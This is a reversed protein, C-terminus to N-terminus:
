TLIKPDRLDNDDIVVGAQQEPVCADLLSARPESM